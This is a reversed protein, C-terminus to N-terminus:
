IKILLISKMLHVVSNQGLVVLHFIRIHYTIAESLLNILNNVMKSIGFIENFIDGSILVAIVDHDNAMEHIKNLKLSKYMYVLRFYYFRAPLPPLRTACICM